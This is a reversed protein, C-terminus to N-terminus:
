LSVQVYDIVKTRHLHATEAARARRNAPARVRSGRTSDRESATSNGAVRGSASAPHFVGMDIEVNVFVQGRPSGLDWAFHLRAGFCNAAVCFPSVANGRGESRETPM